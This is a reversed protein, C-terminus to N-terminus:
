YALRADRQGACSSMSIELPGPLVFAWPPQLPQARPEQRYYTLRCLDSCYVARVDAGAAAGAARPVGGAHDGGWRVIGPWGRPPCPRGPVPLPLDAALVAA